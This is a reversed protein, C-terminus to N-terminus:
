DKVDGYITLVEDIIPHRKIDKNTLRIVSINKSGGRSEIRDIFDSLGNVEFGRDHQNIDGTAIIKSGTGIRSFLMKAQSPLTNQIEDAIIIANKYTSGRMYALPCIEIIEDELMRIVDKPHYYEKMINTIPKTWPAMKEILTGPLFGHEEDVSVAPRTIIIKDIKGEQLCKLAYQTALLTKGCGAPGTAVVIHQTDDELAEIYREQNLSQPILKVPKHRIRTNRIYESDVVQLHDMTSPDTNFKRSSSSRSQPAYFEVAKASNRRKSLNFEGQKQNITNPMNPLKIGDEM